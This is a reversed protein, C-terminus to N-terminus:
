PAGRPLDVFRMRTCELLARGRAVCLPMGTAATIAEADLPGEWNALCPAEPEAPNRVSATLQGQAQALAVQEAEGATLELWVRASADGTGIVIANKVLTTAFPGDGRVVVAILDIHDGKALSSGGAATVPVGRTREAVGASLPSVLNADGLLEGSVVDRALRRGVPDWDEPARSEPGVLEEPVWRVTLDEVRVLTGAPLAKAAALRPLHRRDDGCAFRRQARAERVRGVGMGALFVLM